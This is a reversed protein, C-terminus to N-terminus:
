TKKKLAKIRIFNHSKDLRTLYRARCISVRIDDVELFYRYTETRFKQKEIIDTRLRYTGNDKIEIKSSFFEQRRSYNKLVLVRSFYM